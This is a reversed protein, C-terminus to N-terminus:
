IAASPLDSVQLFTLMRETIAATVELLRPEGVPFSTSDVTDRLKNVLPRARSPPARLSSPNCGCPSFKSPLQLPASHKFNFYAAPMSIQFPLAYRQLQIRYYSCQPSLYLGSPKNPVHTIGRGPANWAVKGLRAQVM